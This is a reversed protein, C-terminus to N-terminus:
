FRNLPTLLKASGFLKKLSGAKKFAEAQCDRSLLEGKRSEKKINNM